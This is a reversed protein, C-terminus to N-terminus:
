HYFFIRLWLFLECKWTWLKVGNFLKKWCNFYPVILSKWVMVFPHSRAVYGMVAFYVVRSLVMCSRYGRLLRCTTPWKWLCGGDRSLALHTRKIGKEPSINSIVLSWLKWHIITHISRNGLKSPMQKTTPCPSPGNPRRAWLWHFWEISNPIMSSSATVSSLRIILLLLTRIIPILWHGLPILINLHKPM